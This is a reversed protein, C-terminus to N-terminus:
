CSFNNYRERGKYMSVVGCALASILPFMSFWKGGDRRDPLASIRASACDRLLSLPHARSRIEVTGTFLSRDVSRALSVRRSVLTIFWWCHPSKKDEPRGTTTRRPYVGRM